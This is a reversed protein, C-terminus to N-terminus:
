AYVGYQHATEFYAKVNELPTGDRISDSTGLIFGGGPAAVELAYRVARVVDDVTGMKIVYLLDVYGKLCVKDGYLRKAEALDVDGVPPPTLTEVVDAGGAVYDGITRMMKGDDYVHYIGDYSHILDAYQKMLPVFVERFTAPSWGASLSGYYWSGFIVNVGQELVAKLSALAFEHFFAFQRDFFPRDLYYDMMLENMGRANGLFHDLPPYMSVEPFGLDGMAQDIEHFESLNETGPAPMIYRLKDLDGPEKLLHEHQVPSPSVGYERGAPALFTVDSLPGAPTEFTRRVTVGGDQEEVQQTIKVEPPVHRYALQPHFIFAPAVGGVPLCLDFGFEKAAKVHHLWSSGGYYSSLWAGIRPSIPVRDPIERRMAALLRQRGTMEATM